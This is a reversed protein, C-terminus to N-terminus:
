HAALAYAISALGEAITGFPSELLLIVAMVPLCAMALSISPHPHM